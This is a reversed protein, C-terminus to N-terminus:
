YNVIYDVEQKYGVNVEGDGELVKEYFGNNQNISEIFWEVKVPHNAPVWIDFTPSNTGVGYSYTLTGIEAVNSTIFKTTARMQQYTNTENVYSLKVKGAEYAYIHIPVNELFPERYFLNADYIKGNQEKYAEIFPEEIDLRIVHWQNIDFNNRDIYAQISDRIINTKITFYGDAGTIIDQYDLNQSGINEAFVLTANPIGEGTDINILQGKFTKVIISDDIDDSSCSLFCFLCFFLVIISKM